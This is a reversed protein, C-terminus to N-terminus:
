STGSKHTITVFAKIVSVLSNDLLHASGLIWEHCSYHIKCKDEEKVSSSYEFMNSLYTRVEKGIEGM